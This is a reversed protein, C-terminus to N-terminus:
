RLVIRKPDAPKDGVTLAAEARAGTSTTTATVQYKGPRVAFAIAAPGWRSLWAASAFIM